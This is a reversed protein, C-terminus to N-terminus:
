KHEFVFIGNLNRKGDKQNLQIQNIEHGCETHKPENFRIKYNVLLSDTKGAPWRIFYNQIGKSLNLEKTGGISLFPSTDSLKAVVTYKLFIQKGNDWYYILPRTHGENNASDEVLSDKPYLQYFISSDSFQISFDDSHDDCDGKVHRCSAFLISIVFVGLIIRTNKNTLVIQILVGFNM